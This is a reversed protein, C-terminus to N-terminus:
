HPIWTMKLVHGAPIMPWMIIEGTTLSPKMLLPIKNWMKKAEFHYWARLFVAEAKTENIQAVTMDTASKMTRLVTNADQVGEYIAQWKPALLSNNTTPTFLELSTLDSVDNFYSGKYAESGCISGYYHDSAAASGINQQSGIGDLLSYTTILLSQVGKYNSLDSSSLSGLPPTNLYNKNCAVFISIALILIHVLKQPKQNFM